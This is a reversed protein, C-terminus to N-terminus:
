TWVKPQRTSCRLSMSGESVRTSHTWGALPRREDNRSPWSRISNSSNAPEAPRTYGGSLVLVSRHNWCMAITTFSM